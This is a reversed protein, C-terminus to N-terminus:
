YSSQFTLAFSVKLFAKIKLEQDTSKVLYGRNRRDGTFVVVRGAKEDRFCQGVISDLLGMHMNEKPYIEELGSQMWMVVEFFYDVM